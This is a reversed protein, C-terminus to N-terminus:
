LEDVPTILTYGQFLRRIIQLNGLSIGAFDKFNEAIFRLDMSKSVGAECRYYTYNKLNQFKTHKNTKSINEVNLLM